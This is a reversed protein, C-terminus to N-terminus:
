IRVIPEFYKEAKNKEYIEEYLRLASTIDGGKEYSQALNFKQEDAQAFLNANCILLPILLLIIKVFFKNM